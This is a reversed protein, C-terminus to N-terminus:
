RGRHEYPFRLIIGEVDGKRKITVVITYLGPGAFTFYGGYTQTGSISMLDLTKKAGMKGLGSVQATVTADTIREGSNANFVAALLHYQTGEEPVGSHMPGQPDTPKHGKTIEAPVVGLYAEVGSVKQYLGDGAANAPGHFLAAALLVGSLLVTFRKMLM